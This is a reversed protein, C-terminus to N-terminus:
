RNPSRISHPTLTSSSSNFSFRRSTSKSSSPCSTFQSTSPMQSPSDSSKSTSPLDPFPFSKSPDSPDGSDPPTDDHLTKEILKDPDEGLEHLRLRYIDIISWMKHMLQKMGKGDEIMNRLAIDMMLTGRAGELNHVLKQSFCLLVSDILNSVHLDPEEIFYELTSRLFGDPKVNPLESQLAVKKMTSLPEPRSIIS